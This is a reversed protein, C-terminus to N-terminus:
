TKMLTWKRNRSIDMELLAIGANLRALTQKQVTLDYMSLWNVWFEEIVQFEHAQSSVAIPTKRSGVVRLYIVHAQQWHKLALDMQSHSYYIIGLNTYVAAVAAQDELGEFIEKAKECLDIAEQFECLTMKLRALDLLVPGINAIHGIDQYLQLSQTYFRLALENNKTHHIRAFCHWVKAQGYTDGLQEFLQLAQQYHPRAAGVDGSQELTMGLGCLVHARGPIAQLDEFLPLAQLYADQAEQLRGLRRYALGLESLAEAQVRDNETKSGEDLMEELPKVALQIQGTRAYLSAVARLSDGLPLGVIRAGAEVQVEESAVEQPEKARMHMLLNLAKEHSKLADRMNGMTFHLDGLDRLTSAKMVWDSLSDFTAIAKYLGDLATNRDGLKINVMAALHLACGRLSSPIKQGLLSDILTKARDLEEKSERAEQLLAVQALTLWHVTIRPLESEPPLAQLLTGCDGFRWTNLARYFEVRFVKLAEDPDVLFGHYIEEALHSLKTRHRAHYDRLQRNWFVWHSSRRAQIRLQRRAVERIKYTGGLAPVAECFSFRVLTQFLRHASAPETLLVELIEENFWRPISALMAADRVDGRLQRLLLSLLAEDLDNTQELSAFDTIRLEQGTTERKQQCLDATLRLHYPFGDTLEVLYRRLVPDNVERRELYETADRPRLNPLARYHDIFELWAPSPREWQLVERGFIVKLISGAESCFERVFWDDVAHEALREFGDFIVTIRFNGNKCRHHEDGMMEELDRAMAKPMIHRLELADMQQLQAIGGRDFQQTIWQAASQSLKAFATIAKPINGLIPIVSIIDAFDEFEPPFRVKSIRQGTTEEWHRAWILDFAPFKLGFKGLQRRMHSFTQECSRPSGDPEYDIVVYPVKASKLLRREAMKRVITKGIGGQGNYVVVKSKVNPQWRLRKAIDELVKERNVYWALEQEEPTVNPDFLKM